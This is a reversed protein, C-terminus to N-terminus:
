TRRARSSELQERLDQFMEDIGDSRTSPEWDDRDYDDGQMGSKDSEIENAREELGHTFNAVSVNLRAAVFELDAAIQRLWDPDDDWSDFNEAIFELFSAKLQEIQVTSVEGSYKEVFHGAARYDDIEKIATFLCHKAALFAEDEKRIGYDTLSDILRALDGRDGDGSRWLKGLVDLANRLFDEGAKSKLDKVVRLAFEARSENSIHRHRFGIPEGYSNVWRNASCTPAVFLKNPLIHLFEDRSRDIGQYRQGGRGDWLAVFQEYFHVSRVLDLVDVDSGALFDEVFDHISPNHFSIVIDSGVKTTAVFSGDLEKLAHNWDGSNTPFGFRSHRFKYFNWFSTELDELLVVDPLTSLVLLLHRAAESIQYRFAHDWIKAPHELSDTFETLYLSSAVACAHRSQTMSEIVRPNYNRHGLINEYARNRLLALKHTKPLDSFYIHNYLIRARIARTYDELKIVCLTFDVQPHSFAESRFKATSLVYERTTLIFRWKENSAVDEILEMLRQDENNQLKELGTRGLFDDFYFVQKRKTNKVPRIEDLNHSIRFAEFGQRDVLDALLVEALTTKGIGPIGAIICYHRSDLLSRARDFSPNQVYRCLRLRIKDLHLESDAFIGSHLVQHLVASSTLWLKFHRREIEDHKGILKNLDECGYIDGPELCYPELIKKIEDKRHPSLSVSTALIYRTPSLREIKQREKQRLVSCLARFGSDAFHKCQVIVNKDEKKHRYDIGSDPGASFSELKIGLDVELLDRALLAFDYSSLSRFDYDAM